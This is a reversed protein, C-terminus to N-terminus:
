LASGRGEVVKYDSCFWVVVIVIGAVPYFNRVPIEASLDLVWPLPILVVAVIFEIIAHVYLPVAKLMGGPFNTLLTLALHVVGLAYAIQAPLQSFGLFSPALLFCTVVFYDLCAHAKSNIFKM